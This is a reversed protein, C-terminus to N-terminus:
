NSILFSECLIPACAAVPTIISRKLYLVLLLFLNDMVKNKCSNDLGVSEVSEHTGLGSLPHAVNFDLRM